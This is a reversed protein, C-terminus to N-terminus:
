DFDEITDIDVSEFDSVSIDDTSMLVDLEHWDFDKRSLVKAIQPRERKSQLKSLLLKDRDM